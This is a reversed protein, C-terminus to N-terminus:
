NLHLTLCTSAKSPSREPPIWCDPAPIIVCVEEPAEGPSTKGRDPEPGIGKKINVKPRIILFYCVVRGCCVCVAAIASSSHGGPTHKM